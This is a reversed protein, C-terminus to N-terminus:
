RWSTLAGSRSDFATEADDDVGPAYILDPISLIADFGDPKVRRRKPESCVGRHDEALDSVPHSCDVATPLLLVGFNLVVTAGPAKDNEREGADEGRTRESEVGPERNETRLEQNETRPECNRTRPERNETRLEQNETRTYYWRLILRKLLPM